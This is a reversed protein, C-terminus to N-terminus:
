PSTCIRFFKATTSTITRTAATTPTTATVVGGLDSWELLNTSQQIRYSVGSVSQWTLTISTGAPNKELSIVRLASSASGPNTQSFFEQQNTFGDGDPDATPSSDELTFNGIWQQFPTALSLTVPASTTSFLDTDYAIATYSPNTVTPTHTFTYPASTKTAVVTGNQRLEIKSVNGGVALQFQLAQQPLFFSQNAPSTITVQPTPIAAGYLTLETENLTGSTDSKGDRVHLTWTGQALEGWHRVSSFTWQSYNANTDDHVEALQSVMGSPSTLTIALDGRRAHAISVKVTVHEVRMAANIVFSRTVGISSNDPISTSTSQTSVLPSLSISRNVWAAALNVAAEAHILGAGYNHHFRLGAGNTAWGPDAPFIQTSSRLLIEQVDRWGLNPNKELM